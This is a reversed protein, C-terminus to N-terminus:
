EQTDDEDEELSERYRQAQTDEMRQKEIEIEEPTLFPLHELVCEDSIYNAALLVMQTQETMNVVKQWQLIPEAKIGAIELLKDLADLIQYELDAAHNDQTQYAAQIEQTTKAAASLTSVDLIQFDEYIDKRLIELMTKRAEVPVEVTHLEPEEGSEAVMGKITALRQRFRAIDTDDMGGANKLIWYVGSTDDIENAFGSKIFDYCDISERVGVLESEHTDNAYLPIIPLVGYNSETERMVGDAETKTQTIKYGRKEQLITPTDSDKATYETYGDVEYLTYFWHTNDGIKKRYFRIGAMLKGTIEDYLPAFGPEQSTNVYSMVEVHDLNWFLFSRGAAMAHKTAETLRQDFDKGLKEKNDMKVGNGLVYQVLQIVLRRFFLSKLKYNSSFIDPIELGSMTRLVKQFKEITENHKAYYMEGAKATQYDASAIHATVADKIFKAKDKAKLLDQYTYM